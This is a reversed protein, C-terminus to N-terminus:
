KCEATKIDYPAIVVKINIGYIICNMNKVKKTNFQNIDLFTLSSCKYFMYQMNTVEETNFHTLSLYILSNCNYFMYGMDIVNQTNFNSINLSVLSVCGDFMSNMYKTKSTNFKSLDLSTLSTCNYFMYEMDIVNQTNFNSINLLELSVCGRFMSNMYKTKSTNFKSLDLSTLSTCNYFMYEMNIVNQTNFNSLHLSTLSTCNYFMNSMDVVNKTKFHYIDLSTLSECEMFVRTMNIVNSTDFNIIYLNRLNTCGCFSENMFKLNNTYFNALNLVTLSKCYFFMRSMDLVNNTKLNSLNIKTLSDCHYFLNNMFKLNDPNFSGFDVSLLFNCYGFLYSIDIVHNGIFSSFSISKLSICGYFMGKMDSITYNNIYEDNFSFNTLKEVYAFFYSLSITNNEPFYYYIKIESINFNLESIPAIYKNNIKMVTFNIIKNPNFPYFLRIKENNYDVKYTAYFAYPICQGKYLYFEEKCLICEECTDNLNTQNTQNTQNNYQFFKEVDNKIINESGDKKDKDQTFIVILVIIAVLVLSGIFVILIKKFNDKCCNCKNMIVIPEEEKKDEKKNERNIEKPVEKNKIIIEKSGILGRDTPLSYKYANENKNKKKGLLDKKIEKKYEEFSDFLKKCTMKELEDEPILGSQSLEEKFISDPIFNNKYYKNKNKEIEKLYKGLYFLKIEYTIENGKKIPKIERVEFASFSLFLVEKEKKIISINEIDCHTSLDFGIDDEKELIFFVRVLDKNYIQNEFFNIAVQKDKSFSLLCRSFVILSPLGNNRKKINFMLKVIENKSIQTGRYLKQATSLPLAKVKIGEYLTKIYSLYKERKNLRLDKNLDKYFDSEITYLEIYKKSVIDISLNKLDNLFTLVKKLQNNSKYKNYLYKMFQKKDDILANDILTKFFLPLLLKIENDIYEFTLQIDNTQIEITKPKYNKDLMQKIEEFTNAVGLFNHSEFINLYEINEEIFNQNDKTFVIIKPVCSLYSINNQLINVLISFLNSNIIIKIDKFTNSKLRDIAENIQTEHYFKFTKMLSLEKFYNQNETNLFDPEIWVVCAKTHLAKKTKSKITNSTEIIPNVFQHVIEFM